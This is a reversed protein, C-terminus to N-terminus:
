TNTNTNSNTHNVKLKILLLGYTVKGLLKDNVKVNYSYNSLEYV